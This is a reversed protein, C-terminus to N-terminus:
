RTGGAAPAANWADNVKVRWGDELRRTFAAGTVTNGVLESWTANSTWLTELMAAHRHAVVGFLKEMAGGSTGWGIDDILLLDAGQAAAARKQADEGASGFLAGVLADARWWAATKARPLRRWFLETALMTKGTGSVGLFGVSWPDGTWDLADLELGFPQVKPRPLFPALFRVPCGAEALAERRSTPRAPVSNLPRLSERILCTSCVRELIPFEKRQSLPTECRPCNWEVFNERIAAALKEPDDLGALNLRNM